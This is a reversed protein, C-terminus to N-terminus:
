LSFFNFCLRFRSWILLYSLLLRDKSLLPLVVIGSFYFFLALTTLVRILFCDVLYLYKPKSQSVEVAQQNSQSPAKRNRQLQDLRTRLSKLKNVKENQSPVPKAEKTSVASLKKKLEATRASQQARLELMRKALQRINGPSSPERRVSVSQSAEPISVPAKQNLSRLLSVRQTV